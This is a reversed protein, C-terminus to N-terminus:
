HYGVNLTATTKSAKDVIICQTTKAYVSNVGRGHQVSPSAQIALIRTLAYVTVEREQSTIDNNM